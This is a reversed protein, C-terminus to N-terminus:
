IKIESYMVPMAAHMNSIVCTVVGWILEYFHYMPFHMDAITQSGTTLIFHDEKIFIRRLVLQDKFAVVILDNNVPQMKADVVVYAGKKIGEPELANNNIRFLFSANKNILLHKNLDISCEEVNKIVTYPYPNKLPTEITM